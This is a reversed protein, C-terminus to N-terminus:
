ETSPRRARGADWSVACRSGVAPLSGVPGRADIEQGDALRIRAEDHFGAFRRAVVVADGDQRAEVHVADLPVLWGGIVNAAGLFRAAFATRPASFMAHPEGEEVIAGARM